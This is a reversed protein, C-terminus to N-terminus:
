ELHFEQPLKKLQHPLLSADTAVVVIISGDGEQRYSPAERCEYNMTDKIDKGIPVGAITFNKKSWLNSQVLM